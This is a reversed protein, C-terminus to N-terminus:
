DEFIKIYKGFLERSKFLKFDHVMFHERIGFILALCGYVIFYKGLRHTTTYRKLMINEEDERLSDM